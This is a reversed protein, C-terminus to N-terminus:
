VATADKFPFRLTATTGGDARPAIVFSAAGDYLYTLRSEVNSLGHGGHGNAPKSFGVGDDAVTLVIRDGERRAEVAIAIGEREGAMGHRISNELLPQLLMFPVSAKAASPDVVVSMQLRRELRTRMIDVYMREVRLEEEIPVEHVDSTALVTRLFDSLQALMADAKAVDDYMVASIANLTNFLFHPHLQLHLSELKAEALKQQLHATEIEAKRADDLRKFFYVFGIFISYSVVDNSAEMPYRYLMNGYDYAGLGVLPFIIARSLALLTTHFVSFLVWGAAFLAASGLWASRTWRMRLGIWIVLPMIVLVGYAGTMEEIFRREATGPHQRAMDDLYFHGFNLLGIATFAVTLVIWLRARNSM